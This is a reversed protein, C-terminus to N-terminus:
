VPPDRSFSIAAVKPQRMFHFLPGGILSVACFSVAEELGFFTLFALIEKLTPVDYAV